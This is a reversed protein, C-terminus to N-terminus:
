RGTGSRGRRERVTAMAWRVAGVAHVAAVTAAYVPLPLRRRYHKAYFARLSRHSERIMRPRVQRTSAGGHHLVRVAALYWIEWGAEWLRFCLDVDNFFIPFREDMGGVQELAERRIVLCSTMPQPVPAPEALDAVPVRYSRGFHTTRRADHMSPQLREEYRSVCCAIRAGLAEEILAGPTPWDRVSEQVRGDPHLLRPAVAGAEPHARLFDLMQGPAEPPLETDPNLLMVFAGRARAIGQNNAAAYGRNEANAILTVEPFEERVTQASGDASANDVVIVETRCSAGSARETSPARHDASGPGQRQGASCRAGLVSRALRLSGLCARLEERTNWNVIVVSLDM